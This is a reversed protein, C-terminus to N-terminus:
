RVVHHASLPDGPRHYECHHQGCGADSAFCVIYYDDDYYVAPVELTATLSYIDKILYIDKIQLPPKYLTLKKEKLHEYTLM